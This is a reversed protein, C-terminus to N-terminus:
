IPASVEMNAPASFKEIGTVVHDKADNLIIDKM